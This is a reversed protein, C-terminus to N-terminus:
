LKFLKYITRADHMRFVIIEREIIEILLIRPTTIEKIAKRDTPKAQQGKSKVQRGPVPCLRTQRFEARCWM